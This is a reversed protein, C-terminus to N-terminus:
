GCWLSRQHIQRGVADQHTSGGFRRLAVKDVYLAGISAPLNLSRSNKSKQLLDKQTMVSCRAELERNREEIYSRNKLFREFTSDQKLNGVFYNRSLL